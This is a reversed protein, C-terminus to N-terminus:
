GRGSPVRGTTTQNPEGGDRRDEELYRGKTPKWITIRLTWRNDQTRSVYGAWTLKRRRVQEDHRYDKDKRKDRHTIRLM